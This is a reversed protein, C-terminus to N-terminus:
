FASHVQEWDIGYLKYYLNIELATFEELDDLVVPGGSRSRKMFSRSRSAKDKDSLLGGGKVTLVGPVNLSSNLSSILERM